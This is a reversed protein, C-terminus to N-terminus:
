RSRHMAGVNNWILVDAMQWTHRYVCQSQM